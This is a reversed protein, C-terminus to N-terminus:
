IGDWIDCCLLMYGIRYTFFTENLNEVLIANTIYLTCGILAFKFMLIGEV